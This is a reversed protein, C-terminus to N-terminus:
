SESKAHQAYWEVPVHDWDLVSHGFDQDYPMKVSAVHSPQKFPPRNDRRYKLRVFVVIAVGLAIIALCLVVGRLYNDFTDSYYATALM